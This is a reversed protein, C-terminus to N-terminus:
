VCPSYSMFSDELLEIELEPHNKQKACDIAQDPNEIGMDKLWERLKSENLNGTLYFGDKLSEEHGEEPYLHFVRFLFGSKIKVARIEYTSQGNKIYANNEM